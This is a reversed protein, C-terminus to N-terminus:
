GDVKEERGREERTGETGGVGQCHSAHKIVRENMTGILDKRTEQGAFNGVGREM